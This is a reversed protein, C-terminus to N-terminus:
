SGKPAEATSVVPMAPPPVILPQLAPGMMKLIQTALGSTFDYNAADPGGVHVTVTGFFRDGIFFVFVANRAVVRSELLKGGPGYREFRHDGTGTKGGVVLPMGDMQFANHVRRATGNEVVDILAKRVTQAVEAPLVREPSAPKAEILTEYPTDAAFHLRDVRVTPQRVGDNLIIGMLEALASPRDASSGISTAYSAVLSDFPFGLRKWSEHIRKFAEEELLIRIRVDQASKHKTRFLWAYAEQREEASAAMIEARTAGPKEQLFSVLWLELPHIRALYGRDSLNFRDPGFKEYLKQVGTDDIPTQPLQARLFKGMTGADENPRVSRYIV